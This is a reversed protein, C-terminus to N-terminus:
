WAGLIRGRRSAWGSQAEWDLPSRVKSNSIKFNPNSKLNLGATRRLALNLFRLYIKEKM